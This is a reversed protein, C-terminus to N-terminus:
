WLPWAMKVGLKKMSKAMEHYAMVLQPYQQHYKRMVIEHRWMSSGLTESSVNGGNLQSSLMIANNGIDNERQCAMVDNRRRKAM